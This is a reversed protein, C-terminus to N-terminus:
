SWGIADVATLAPAGILAADLVGARWSYHASIAICAVVGISTSMCSVLCLYAGSRGASPVCSVLVAACALAVGAFLGPWMLPELAWWLSGPPVFESPPAGVGELACCVVALLSALGAQLRPNM